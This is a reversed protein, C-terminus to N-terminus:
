GSKRFANTISWPMQYVKSSLFWTMVFSLFFTLATAQAAGLSGNLKILIYNFVINLIACFLTIFALIYTKEVYFIYNVVMLYMGNFAFGISIWFVYVTANAFQKGIFIRIFLPAIASLGIALIIIVVFYSYTARVIKKKTNEDNKKLNNFLWPVYAQNFSNEILSLVMGIQCAVSYLGTASINVMNTIFIRDTMTMMVSGLAHPILPIGFKLANFIYLKNFRLKLWGDKYLFYFSIFGFGITTYIQAAIRGQWALGLWVVLSLTIVVNIITKTFQYVAFKHAKLQAQWLNLNILTIFHAISFVIITWLWRKPMSSLNSISGAFLYFPISILFGSAALILLCNFVYISLDITDREYYQRQIAGHMSLGTIPVVFSVLVSFMAVIGFDSPTMYRTLIPMMLFPLASNLLSSFTYIGANKFLSSQFINHIM